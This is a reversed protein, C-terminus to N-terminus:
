NMWENLHRRAPTRLPTRSTSPWSPAAASAQPSSCSPSRLLACPLCPGRWSSPRWGETPPSPWCFRAATSQDTPATAPVAVLSISSLFFFSILQARNTKCIRLLLPCGASRLTLQIQEAADHARSQPPVSFLRARNLHNCERQQPSGPGLSVPGPNKQIIRGRTINTKLNYTPRLIM